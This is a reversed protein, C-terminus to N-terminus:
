SIGEVLRASRGPAVDAPAVLHDLIAVSLAAAQGRIEPIATSEWLEGRRLAGLTWVPADVRGRADLVRGARTAVGMGATTVQALAGGERHRLLDDVMPNGLTRVDCRPGTANVVWGVDHTTARPGDALHVRLRGGELPVVGVVTGRGVVLRGAGTLRAVTRASAPPVRHRLTGWAGAHERLLRQREPESLGAWLGAARLRLGDVAPRWDGTERHVREVHARAGALLGDLGPEWGLTSPVVPAAVVDRHPRPLRGSRSVARFRLDPDAAALGLVVDVATLGTGVVLVERPGSARSRRVRDLAAPEWPDAVFRSSERLAAPAWDCGASPLGTAVVVADAGIAGADTLVEWSRGVPAGSRRHLGTATVRRHEFRVTRAAVERHLQEELYAAYTARPAFRHAGGDGTRLALWRQFHQPREPWASMASAPVNLLHVPDTTGFAAGRGPLPAPDLLCITLPTGRRGAEHALHTAVLTGAAGAGVVVVRPAEGGGGGHSRPSPVADARLGSM